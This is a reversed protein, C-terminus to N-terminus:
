RASIGLIHRLLGGGGPQGEQIGHGTGHDVSWHGAAPGREKRSARQQRHEHPIM